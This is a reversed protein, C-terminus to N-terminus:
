GWVSYLLYFVPAAMAISDLSDLVGGRGPFLTGSDKVAASRKLASEALDGLTAALACLFGTVLGALPAHASPALQLVGFYQLAGGVATSVLIGGAFGAISKNPSIKVFGRNNKGFLVGFFWAFSDNVIVILLFSV